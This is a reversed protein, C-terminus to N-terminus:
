NLLEATGDLAGPNLPYFVTRRDKKIIKLDGAETEVFQVGFSKTLPYPLLYTFTIIYRQDYTRYAAIRGPYGTLNDLNVVQAIKEPLWRDEKTKITKITGSVDYTPGLSIVIPNEKYSGMGSFRVEQSMRIDIIESAVFHWSALFLVLVIAFAIKVKKRKKEIKSTREEHKDTFDESRNRFFNIFEKQSRLKYYFYLLIVPLGLFYILYYLLLTM